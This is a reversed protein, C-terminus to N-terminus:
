DDDRSNEEETGFKDDAETEAQKRAGIWNLGSKHLEYTRERIWGPRPDIYHAM